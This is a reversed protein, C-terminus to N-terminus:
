QTRGAQWLLSADIDALCHCGNLVMAVELEARLMNLVHAVGVAGAAALGHIYPRGIMVADAGLALAKVVDSGRRIGGDLLLPIQKNVVAAVAALADISAPLGDLTRGGHNSVVLGDMGADLAQRADEPNMVGKLVVPLRTMSKLWRMDEWTPAAQLLNSGFVPSQGPKSYWVPATPLGRLNVAEIDAPLAFGARQERHRPGNVPADVTVLLAKCGAAEAAKVLALNAERHPQWYLQFLLPAVARAAIHEIGVSAQTSVVMAAGMAAAATVTALEGESHALRHFAVPALLIPYELLMDFLQLRTNGQQVPQLVRGKFRYRSFADHNDRLTIEDAAGGSFYAWAQPTMRAKAYPEYDALSQIDAPITQLPPLIATM